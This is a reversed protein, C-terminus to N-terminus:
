NGVKCFLCYLYTQEVGGPTIHLEKTHNQLEFEGGLMDELQEHSYRRVSLGSCSPPAEPAFVGIILHGGLKLAKLLNDRYKRQQKESTLFHFVARDHWLEYYCAPLEVSNIDDHLWSILKAKDGLREKVSSLAKDSLDLVTISQYGAKLLDDVLTSVGGGIDIIPADKSLKLEDIWILSTHLHPEYWGLKETPKTSYVQEWHAKTSM